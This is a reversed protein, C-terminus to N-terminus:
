IEIGRKPLERGMCSLWPELREGKPIEKIEGKCVNVAEQWNELRRTMGPSKEHTITPCYAERQAQSLTGVIGRSFCINDYCKCPTRAAVDPDIVIGPSGHAYPISQFILFTTTTDEKVKEAVLQALQELEKDTM